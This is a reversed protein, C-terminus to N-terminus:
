AIPLRELAQRATAHAGREGPCSSPDRMAFSAPGKM